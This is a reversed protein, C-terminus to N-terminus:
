KCQDNVAYYEQLPMCKVKYPKNDGKFVHDDLSIPDNEWTACTQNYRGGDYNSKFQNDYYLLSWNTTGEWNLNSM